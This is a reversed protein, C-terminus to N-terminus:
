EPKVPWTITRPFESQDPLDLLERRYQAWANQQETSMDSWRLPNSIIPDVEYNLITDREARAHFALEEDSPPTYNAVDNNSNFAAILEGNDVTMDTDDPDMTYPIWGYIPSNIDCDVITHEPNIYKANKYEM